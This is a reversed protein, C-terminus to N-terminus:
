MVVAPAPPETPADPLARGIENAVRHRVDPRLKRFGSVVLTRGDDELRTKLDHRATVREVTKGDFPLAKVEYSLENFPGHCACM